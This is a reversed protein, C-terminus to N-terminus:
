AAELWKPKGFLFETLFGAFENNKRYVAAVEENVFIKFGRQLKQSIQEAVGANRGGDKLRDRLLVVADAYKRRQEVVWRGEEIFPGSVTGSNGLHKRLFDGSELEKELPPGLHKKVPSLCRQELEFVFVNLAKEDSWSMSRLVNFDNLQILKNLSRQSKYLQGWLVDPVTNVDGFTLFLMTSGREALKQKLEKLALATTPPPYFFSLDANRLFVRAAAVFTYL